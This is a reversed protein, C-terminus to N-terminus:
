PFYHLLLNRRSWKPIILYMTLNQEYLINEPHLLDKIQKRRYFYLVKLELLTNASWTPFIVFYFGICHAYPIEKIIRTNKPTSISSWLQDNWHPNFWTELTLLMQEFVFCSCQFFRRPLLSQLGFAMLKVSLITQKSCFYLWDWSVSFCLRRLTTKKLNIKRWFLFM